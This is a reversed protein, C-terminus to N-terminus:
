VIQSAELDKFVQRMDIGALCAEICRGCGTCAYVGFNAMSFDFKNIYKNKFRDSVTPRANAGGGVRAYGRYYCFDWIRVKEFNENVKQDYLLFCHCTPCVSLCAACEMCKGAYRHYAPSAFKETATQQYSKSLTFKKNQERVKFLTAARNRDREELQAPSAECFVDKDQSILKEGEESGIEVVLGESIKSLNLAFGEEPYPTLGLMTCFCSEEPSSCDTSVIAAKSRSELYFPDKTEGKALTGDLIELSRLDCAKAGVIIFSPWTTEVESSSSPYQAVREKIKFFFAKLPEGARTSDYVIGDESGPALRQYHLSDQIYRLVYVTKEQAWKGLLREFGLLSVFFSM